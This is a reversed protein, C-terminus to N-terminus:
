SSMFYKLNKYNSWIEFRGQAGELLHRWEKLYRIIVLMERNYIKYNREAKNLLKSIFAVLRWKENKYKMLLVEETTYELVNAEVRIEKDLDSAVLVPRTTFM